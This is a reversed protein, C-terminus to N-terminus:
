GERLANAPDLKTARRVPVFCALSASAGLILPVGGFTIPDVLAIGFLQGQIFRGLAIAAALGVILGIASLGLARGVVMRLVDRPLAGLALRISIERTRQAVTYSMVGFVGIAALTLGVGAFVALLSTYFRPGRLSRVVLQTM